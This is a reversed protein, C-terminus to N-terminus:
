HHCKLRPPLQPFISPHPSAQNRHWRMCSTRRGKEAGVGKGSIGEARNMAPWCRTLKISPNTGLVSAWWNPSLGAQSNASMRSCGPGPHLSTPNPSLLRSEIHWGFMVTFDTKLIHLECSVRWGPMQQSRLKNGHLRDLLGRPPQEKCIWVWTQHVKAKPM